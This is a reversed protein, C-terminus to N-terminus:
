TYFITVTVTHATFPSGLPNLIRIDTGDWSEIAPNYGIIYPSVTPAWALTRWNVNDPSFGGIIGIISSGNLGHALTNLGPNLTMTTSVKMMKIYSLGGDTSMGGTAAVTTTNVGNPLTLLGEIRGTGGVYFPYSNNTGAVMVTQARVQGVDVGGSSDRAMIRSPTNDSTANHANPGVYGAAHAAVDVGDVLGGVTINQTLIMNDGTFTAADLNGAATRQAITDGTKTVSPAKSAKFVGAADIYVLYGNPNAL